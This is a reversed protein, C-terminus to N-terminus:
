ESGVSRGENARFIQAADFGAEETPLLLGEECSPILNGMGCLNGAQAVHKM